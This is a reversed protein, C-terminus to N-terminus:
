ILASEVEAAAPAGADGLNLAAGPWPCGTPVAEQAGFAAIKEKLVDFVSVVSGSGGAWAPVQTEPLGNEIM